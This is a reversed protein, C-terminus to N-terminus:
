AVGRARALVPEPAVGPHHKVDAPGQELDLQVAVRVARRVLDPGLQGLGAEPDCRM